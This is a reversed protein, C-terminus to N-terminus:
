SNSTKKNSPGVVIESMSDIQLHNVAISRLTNSDIKHISDLYNKLFSFDTGKLRLKKYQNSLAFPGTISNLLNGSLYNKVLELEKDSVLENQLLVIEKYIEKLAALTVKAGVETAINFSIARNNASIFSSIGYTYGKDERINSMLRSGFYGGLVVNLFKLNFYEQSGFDVDLIKGIRIASQLSGEKEINKKVPKSNFKNYSNTNKSNIILYGFYKNLSNKIEDDNFNGAVYISMKDTQIYEEKFKYLDEAIINDFNSLEVVRNYPSRKFISKTFERNCITNVKELETKLKEKANNLFTQLAKENYVSDLVSEVFLPLAESLKNTTCFLMFSLNDKEVSTKVYSGHFDLNEIIKGSSKNSSADAFLAAIASLIVTNELDKTGTNYVLEIKIVEQTGLNFSSVPIGNTLKYNNSEQPNIEKIVKIKPQTIRDLM